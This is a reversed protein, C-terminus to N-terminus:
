NVISELFWGGLVNSRSFCNIPVYFQCWSVVQSFPWQKYTPSKYFSDLELSNRSHHQLNLRCCSPDSCLLLNLGWGAATLKFSGATAVATPTAWMQRVSEIGPVPVEMYRWHLWFFFFFFFSSSSSSNWNKHRGTWYIMEGSWRKEAMMVYLFFWSIMTSSNRSHSLPLLYSTDTPIHNQDRAKSLPNLIQCKDWWKTDM